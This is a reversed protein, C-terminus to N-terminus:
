PCRPYCKPSLKRRAFGFFDGTAPPREKWWELNEKYVFETSRNAWDKPVFDPGLHKWTLNAGEECVGIKIGSLSNKGEGFMMLATPHSLVGSMQSCGFIDYLQNPHSTYIQAKIESVRRITITIDQLTALSAPITALVVLTTLVLGAIKQFTLLRYCIWATTILVYPHFFYTYYVQKPGKYYRFLIVDLLFIAAVLYYKKQERIKSLNLVTFISTLSILFLGLYKNGGIVSSWTSPWYDSVYTLWRTTLPQTPQDILFYIFVSRSLFWNFRLDFYLIPIFPISLGLVILLLSKVKNKYFIVASLAAPLFLASQFHITISLGVIFGLLFAYRLKGTEQSKLLVLLGIAILLPIASPNWISFYNGIAAPSIAAFLALIAAM